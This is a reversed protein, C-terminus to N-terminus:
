QYVRAAYVYWRDSDKRAPEDRLKQYRKAGRSDGHFGHAYGTLLEIEKPVQSNLKLQCLSVDSSISMGDNVAVQDSCGGYFM